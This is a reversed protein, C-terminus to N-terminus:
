RVAKGETCLTRNRCISRDSQHHVGSKRAPIGRHKGFFGHRQSFPFGIRGAQDAFQPKQGTQAAFRIRNAQWEIRNDTENSDGCLLPLSAKSSRIWPILISRSEANRRLSTSCITSRRPSGTTSIRIPRCDVTDHKEIIATIALAADTVTDLNQNLDIVDDLIASVVGYFAQAHVNGKIREPYVINTTGERYDAMISKMKDLYEAESIVRNKYDELADKIRKSFSDYYAPNEDRNAKISKAMHSRIADAKSRLSGLEELEKELEDKDLIDVPNTIQKIGAVSLHTDLLNQMQKEYEANDIADAYRVKVSRRVKSFFIFEDQYKALEEREFAAYAKESNLVANLARGFVCLGDYFHGRTEEDALFLEVEETDRRNKLSVFLDCLHSYAERLRGVCAMVDV